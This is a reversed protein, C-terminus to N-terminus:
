LETVEEISNEIEVGSFLDFCDSAYEDKEISLGGIVIGSDMKQKKLTYVKKGIICVEKLQNMLVYTTNKFVKLQNISNFNLNNGQQKKMTILKWYVGQLM